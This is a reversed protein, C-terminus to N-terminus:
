FEFVQVRNNGSDVAVIRDKRDVALAWPYTLKGPERGGAGWIKLGKGTLKDIMQVRNNGFECVILRGHSDMDLGFPFRFEGPGSGVRGMNRLFTGDTKFVAIRHNCADTIYVTEADILISQPRSLEGAGTGFKGFEYLYNGQGDFVQIRSQQGYEGVFVRGQSDFAVDTPLDFQGHGAGATGWQRLLMGDPDFVQVRHYHTDPVYVNGDPGVSLGVPKGNEWHQMRWGGLAKGRRDLHQIRAM